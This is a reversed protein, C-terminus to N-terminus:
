NNVRPTDGFYLRGFDERRHTYHRRNQFSINKLKQLSMVPSIDGDIINTAEYFLFEELETLNEIGKISDVDGLNILLLRKLRKLNFGESVSNIGKCSYIELEELDRLQEIGHISVLKRLRAVSLYKLKKLKFIGDLSEVRSNMLTLKELNVLNSFPESNTNKYNNLGLGRLSKCEFLSDSGKIWEFDCLLLNQFCNFDVPTDSYVSLGLETLNHLCHIPEVSKLTLDLITLVRLDPLHELFDINEGKWGKGLNLELERTDKERLLELISGHWPKRIIAKTGWIGQEFEVGNKM